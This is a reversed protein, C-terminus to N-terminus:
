PNDIQESFEDFRSYDIVEATNEGTFLHCSSHGVRKQVTDDFDVVLRCEHYRCPFFAVASRPIHDDGLTIDTLDLECLPRDVGADLKYQLRGSQGQIIELLDIMYKAHEPDPETKNTLPNPMLGLHIMAQSAMGMLYMMFNAEPLPGVPQDKQATETPQEDGSLKEKEKQAREKWSQDVHINEKPKDEPM